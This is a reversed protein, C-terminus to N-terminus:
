CIKGTKLFNSVASRYSDLTSEHVVVADESCSKWYLFNYNQIRTLQFPAVWLGMTVDEFQFIKLQDGYMTVAEVVKRGLVYGVGICYPLYQRCISKWEDDKWKGEIDPVKSLCNGWYLDNHCRLKNLDKAINDLRIVVDDDTKILYDFHENKVAWQIAFQVKRTLQFYDDKLNDLVVLDKFREQENKLRLLRDKSLGKAGLIFKVTVQISPPPPVIWTQRTILRMEEGTGNPTSMIVILLRAPSLTCRDTHNTFGQSTRDDHPTLSVVVLSSSHSSKMDRSQRLPLNMLINGVLVGCVFGVIIPVHAICGM